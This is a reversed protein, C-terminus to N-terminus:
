QNLNKNSSLALAFNFDHITDIDISDEIKMIYAYINSKLFFSKENLLKQKNSIYIAGNLSYYQDLDQSRKNKIDDSLFRDMKLDKKLIGCWLPNHSSESVSIIGDAKMQFLQEIAEDIHNSTRLPSTPQLLIIYDYKGSKKILDEVVDYTSTEDLSLNKPRKITNAGYYSSIALIEENESSVILSDIYKSKLGAKITWSILPHGNFELLNKGPLRKSGARAPVIGLFSKGKFM